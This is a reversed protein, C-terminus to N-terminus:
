TGGAVDVTAIGTCRFMAYMDTVNSTNWRGVNLVTLKRDDNFMCNM